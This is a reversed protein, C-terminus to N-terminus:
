NWRIIDSGDSPYLRVLWPRNMGHIPHVGHSIERDIQAGDTKYGEDRSYEPTQNHQGMWRGGLAMINPTQVRGLM